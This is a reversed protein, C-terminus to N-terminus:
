RVWDSHTLASRVPYALRAAVQVVVAALLVIGYIAHRAASKIAEEGEETVAIVVVAAIALLLALGNLVRHSM